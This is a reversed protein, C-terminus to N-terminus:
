SAAELLAVTELHATQPFLDFPQVQLLRYRAQTTGPPVVCLQNLDRALTAPDCSIYVMRAPPRAIIAQVVPAGLGTRPPNVVLFDAPTLKPLVQEVLGVHLRAPRSTRGALQDGSAASEGLREAAWEVARRDLEVSEVTAGDALLAATTDGVGSYLDWGHRGTVPGLRALAHTRVQDGMAPFVQEFVTAPAVERRGAMIRPAGGRPQWWLTLRPRGVREALKVATTWAQKGEARIALHEGGERDVRLVIQETDPPLLALHNRVADWLERVAPEAIECRELPFVADPRDVPHFGAFRNKPGPALTIRSRYDWMATAPVLPPVEIDIKGIRLLADRLMARKAELQVAPELHQLQCGGCDHGIYHRCRPEIRGPGPELLRGLRARAFRAHLAIQAPEILDGPATRPLFITRGDALRGVGDGGSALREIRVPAAESM